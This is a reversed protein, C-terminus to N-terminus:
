SWSELCACGREEDLAIRQKGQSPATGPLIGDGFYVVHNVVAPHTESRKDAIEPNAATLTVEGVAELIIGDHRANFWVM